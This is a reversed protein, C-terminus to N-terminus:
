FLQHGLCDESRIHEVLSIELEFLHIPAQCPCLLLNKLHGDENNLRNPFLKWKMEFPRYAKSEFYHNRVINM